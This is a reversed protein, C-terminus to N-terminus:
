NLKYTIGITGFIPYMTQEITKFDKKFVGTLGWSVDVYAGIRGSFRWDAGAGLGFQWKRMDSSFDYDGRSAEENGMEVKEGTPDGVRLYGDYAYGDFTNSLLYSLYPGLKLRFRSGLDYTAQVPLTLAWYSVNTVVNGTFRGSLTEYSQRMEMKYNKVRADTKMTRGELHLGSMLGWQKYMPKFIDFALTLNRKLSYKNLGRITEPMGLPMTGGISYGVRAGYTIGDLLNEARVSLTGLLLLLAIIINQKM